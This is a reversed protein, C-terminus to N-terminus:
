PQRRRLDSRTRGGPERGSPVDADPAPTTSPAPTGTSEGRSQLKDLPLYFVNNGSKQDVYIKTTSSLIQEMAEIYLRERTVAPARAYEKMIQGFRRADGDARATVSSKYAEAEELLRSSAGRARPIVDAAYAEAENKLRAQDERAKVADDFAAKVEAPAQAEQTEVALIDIGSQYRDLMQQLLARIDRAVHERGETLSFDFTNKGVVERIASETAQKITTEPDQVNFLFAEADKIKYHVAFETDIINEDGTLMLSEQPVKTKGSRTRRYGIQIAPVNEVDVKEVKEIPYPWHWHLGAETVQTKAGFRLVVGREGQQVIYFGSLSWLGIAVIAILWVGFAPGTTRPGRLMGGFKKQLNRLFQDLDASGANARKRQGWPDKEKDDNGGPVNWAM